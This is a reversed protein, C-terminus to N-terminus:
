SVDASTFGIPPFHVVQMDKYRGTVFLQGQDTVKGQDGSKYWLVGKEDRYWSDKGVDGIYQRPLCPGCAHIEGLVNRPVTKGTEPDVVRITFGAMPGGTSIYEGEALQEPKYMTPTGVLLGETSGYYNEVGKVGLEEIALRVVDITLPAGALLALELDSPQRNAYKPNAAKAAVLAYVMTPVLITMSIRETFIVEIMVSPDFAIGPFVIASGISLMTITSTWGMAHNNPLNGCLRKGSTMNSSQHYLVRGISEQYTHFLGKPFATTGSTFLITGANLSGSLDTLPGYTGTEGMLSEFPIWELVPSEQALTIKLADAPFVGLEDVQKALDNNGTVVVLKKGGQSISLGTNVMHIAEEVNILNRPSIAMFKCGM